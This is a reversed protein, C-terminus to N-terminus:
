VPRKNKRGFITLKEVEIEVIDMENGVVSLPANKVKGCVGVPFDKALERSMKRNYENDPEVVCKVFGSEDFLDIVTIGGHDRVEYVVGEVYVSEGLYNRLDGVSIRTKEM